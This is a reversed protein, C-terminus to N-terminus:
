EVPSYVSQPPPAMFLPAALFQVNILLEAVLYPPAIDTVSISFQVKMFLEAGSPPAILQKELTLSEIKM